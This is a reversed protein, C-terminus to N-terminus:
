WFDNASMNEQKGANTFVTSEWRNGHTKTKTTMPFQNVNAKGWMEKVGEVFIDCGGTASSHSLYVPHAVFFYGPDM